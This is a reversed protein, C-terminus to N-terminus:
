NQLFTSMVFPSPTRLFPSVRPYFGVEVDTTDWRGLEGDSVPETGGGTLTIAADIPVGTSADEVRLSFRVLGSLAATGEIILPEGGRHMSEDPLELSLRDFFVPQHDRYLRGKHTSATLRLLYTGDPVSSADWLAIEDNQIPTEGTAITRWRTPATGHGYALEFQSFDSGRAIGAIHVESSQQTVALPATILVELPEPEKLAGQADLRGYGCRNDFGDLNVDVASRRVVQRVQEPTYGPHQSLILAALGALHPAAMSTGSSRLCHDGVLLQVPYDAAQSARLSLVGDIPQFDPPGLNFGSGPAAVDLAGYNSSCTPEDAPNTSAVVMSLPYNQPSRVAIDDHNNGASFVNVIGLDHAFAVADEHLPVSPCPSSCGWSNNIVQAGNQAAYLMGAALQFATGGAKSLGKVAMITADPAVGVIGFGNDDQAAITGAVHTGHGYDDMPDNDSNFMDWGYLDDIYGNGDDDIGNDLELPNVWNNGSLDPHSRDVGSDVVAVVVGKGRATDWATEMNLRKLGWLDDYAQDFSGSSSLYPDNPSYHLEMPYNPHAYVVHPDRQFAAAIRDLEGESTLDVLYTNLLKGALVPSRPTTPHVVSHLFRDTATRTNTGVRLPVLASIRQVRYRRFLDDLSGSGDATATGFSRRNSFWTQACETVRAKGQARFQVVLQRPAATPANSHDSVGEGDLSFILHHNPVSPAPAPDCGFLLVECCVLLVWPAGRCHRTDAARVPTPERNIPICM